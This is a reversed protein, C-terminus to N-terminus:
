RGHRWLPDSAPRSIHSLARDGEAFSGEARDGEATRLRAAFDMRLLILPLANDRDEHSTPPPSRRVTTEQPRVVLEAVELKAIKGILLRAAELDELLYKFVM